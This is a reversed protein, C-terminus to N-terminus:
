YESMCTSYNLQVHMNHPNWETVAIHGERSCCSTSGPYKVGDEDRSFQKESGNGVNMLCACVVIKM